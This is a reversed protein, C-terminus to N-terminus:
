QCNANCDLWHKAFDIIDQTNVVCDAVFDGAMDGCKALTVGAQPNVNRYSEPDGYYTLYPWEEGTISTLARGTDDKLNFSLGIKAGQATNTLEPMASFPIKMEIQM